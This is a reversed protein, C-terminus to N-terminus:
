RELRLRMFQRPNTSQPVASRWTQTVFVGQRSQSVLVAPVTAPTWPVLATSVEVTCNLGDAGHRRSFTIAAYQEPPNNGSSVLSPVLAAPGSNLDTDSTGLFFEMLATYGDGDADAAADGTFAVVDATSGPAPTLSGSSRWSSPLAHDPNSMPNILVLSYGEGDAEAPWPSKDNYSFDRIVERNSGLIHLQEGSNSLNGAYPGLVALGAAPYDAAFVVPDGAVVLRQGSVLTTAMPFDFDIGGGIQVGSLDMSQPGINMFEIYEHSNGAPPNYHFQSVVLNTPSAPVTNVRFFASSLASWSTGNLVRSNVLTSANVPLPSTYTLAGVAPDGGTERPDSGNLTYFITGAASTLRLNFGSAVDGGFRPASTADDVYVAAATAPYLKDTKLQNLVVTTRNPFVTTKVTSIASEWDAVIYSRPHGAPLGSISQADGWRASESKMALRLQNARNDFRAISKQPTLAGDNFFHRQVHDAFRLRYEANKMLDEHMWQPNSYSFNTKNSGGWPGTQDNVSSPAGLTHEADRIFFRFGNSGDRRYVSFWNNPQNHGLFNSLVADGDGAYFLVLMEDILNDIDLLVPKAPNRTGDPNRGQVEFYKDTTPNSGFAQMKSWLTYWTTMTGDTAETVFGGIHNGCKVADYEDSNGGMYSAAFEAEAREETYYVGWYVGNLYLHWFRSKTYPQGLAGQTDRCFMDRCMTNFKGSSYSSERFWGYNSGTGLDLKGFENTGEKGFLPYKLKGDYKKSFYLRLGHKYFSDGRSYGGRIRLGADIQFGKPNGDPSVYGPPFILEASVPREWSPGHQDANVYIGTANATLNAQPTVISMAPLSNLSDLMEQGTFSTVINPNMGYNLVQGTGSSSPWGKATANAPTQALIGSAFLYTQTDINTPAFGDKFVAARLLTTGGVTGYNIGEAGAPIAGPHITMVATPPTFEDPAPVKTGISLTPNAGNTTYVLTAGPTSCTITEHVAETYFGRGVAFKTDDTDDLYGQVGGASNAAGPTPISTAPSGFFGFQIPTGFSGYSRGNYQAPYAPAFETVVAGDATKVLGLYEGEVALSFDTHLNGMPVVRNKGSAIVVRYGNAPISAGEPFLWTAKSDKLAYGQLTVAFPNPNFIEVWDSADGDEDVLTGDNDAMFETISVQQPIVGIHITVSKSTPGTANAATLTYTTTVAPSVVVTGSADPSSAVAGNDIAVSTGDEVAWTLTVPAGATSLVGQDSTILGAATATFTRVSPTPLTFATPVGYKNQFYWGIRRVSDTSLAGEFILLEALSGKWFRPLDAGESGLRFSSFNKMDGAQARLMHATGLTFTGNTGTTGSGNLYITGVPTNGTFDGYTAGVGTGAYRASSSNRRLNLGDGGNSLLVAFSPAGTDLMTVAFITRANLDAEDWIMTDNVGDFRVVPQSNFGPDSAVYVPASDGAAIMPGWSTVPAQDALGLGDAKLYLTVKGYDSPTLVQGGASHILCALSAAASFFTQRSM